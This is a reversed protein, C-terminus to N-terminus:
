NSEGLYILATSYVAIAKGEGVSDQGENTTSKVGVRDIGIELCSSISEKMKQYHPSMKPKEAIITSDINIITINHETLLNKVKKLLIMSNINKWQADSPPFLQGIDGLNAAGLLADIIAHVLADADSHGALGLSHPITIGGLILERGSVLQHLDYGNGIRLRTIDM